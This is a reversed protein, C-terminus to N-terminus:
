RELNNRQVGNGKSDGENAAARAPSQSLADTLRQQLNLVDNAIAPEARAIRGLRDVYSAPSLSTQNSRALWRAFRPSALLRGGILQAAASGIAAHPAVSGLGLIAGVNGLIGGATNSRNAYGQAQRTGNAVKALDNLAARGEPGFLHTKATEGIDNWNSLFTQLSFANGTDNQAGKTANGLRSILSARVDGAEQPPLSKVFGVFRANNGRMASQLRQVVQEGSADANKGIIPAITNDITDLRSRWYRDATAYARAAEPRGADKLGSVVDDNAADVVQNVRREVDSGRLGNSTFEDRLSTRLNRIGQVTFDGKSLSDRLGQLTNLAVSGGPTESLNQIHGDLNALANTPTIRVGNSAAEAQRYLDNGRASTRAIFSRAGSIAQGGAAEPNLANGVSSAVRDRVGQAQEVTKGAANIVPAASLPAQAAASTLRRTTPGGVDAPLLDIGQRGAAAAVAQGDSLPLARAAVRSADLKPALYEGAKGFAVGGLAGEAAGIGAGALREGATGYNSNFGYAGGYGAGVAAARKTAAQAAIARAEAMTAGEVLAAKGAKFAVGEMGAPLAIGGLLQGTLRAAHHHEEDSAVRERQLELNDDYGSLGSDTGTLGGTAHNLAAWGAAIRPALGLTLSDAAGRAAAHLADDDVDRPAPADVAPAAPDTQPQTPTGQFAVSIQKGPNQAAYTIAEDLGTLKSPDVGNSRAFEEIQPRTAGSQILSQLKPLYDPAAPPTPAADVPAATDDVPSAQSQKLYGALRAVSASDGAADAQRIADYIAANPDTAM